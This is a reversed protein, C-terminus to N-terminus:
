FMYMYIILCDILTLRNNCSCYFMFCAVHLLLINCRSYFKVYFQQLLLQNVTQYYVHTHKLVKQLRTNQVIKYLGGHHLRLALCRFNWPVNAGPLSLELSRFNWPVFTGYPVFTGPLSLEM